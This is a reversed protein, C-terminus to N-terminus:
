SALKQIVYNPSSYNGKGIGAVVCPRKLRVKPVPINPVRDPVGFQRRIPELIKPPLKTRTWRKGYDTFVYDKTQANTHCAFGCKADNAQPPEDTLNGPRFVNSAADYEFAAYGWGGVGGCSGAMAPQPLSRHIRACSSSEFGQDVYSGGYWEDVKLAAKPNVKGAQWGNREWRRDALEIGSV